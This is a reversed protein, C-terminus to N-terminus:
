KGGFIIKLYKFFFKYLFVGTPFVIFFGALAAALAYALYPIVIEAKELAVPLKKKLVEYLALILGGAIVGLLIYKYAPSKYKITVNNVGEDLDIIMFDLPNDKMERVKGNVKVEYGELNAYNLYLSQGKKATIEPLIIENKALKYEVKREELKTKLARIDSTSISGKIGSKEGNLFDYVAVMRANEDMDDDIVINGGDVVACSPFALENEYVGYKATNVQVSYETGDAFCLRLAVFANSYKSSKTFNYLVETTEFDRNTCTLYSSSAGSLRYTGDNKTWGTAEVGNMVTEGDVTFNKVEATIYHGVVRAKNVAESTNFAYFPKDNIYFEYGGEVQKASLKIDNGRTVNALDGTPKEASFIRTSEGGSKKWVEVCPKEYGYIETAKYYNKNKGNSDDGDYLNYVVYKYSMVADSFTTGNHTKTSNQGNSAYGFFDPVTINKTAAMSSFVSHGYSGLVIPSDSSIYYKYNKYRYYNEGYTDNVGEVLQEYVDYNEKSGSQRDGKVLSFNFFIPQSLALICMVCAIDKLKVNLFKVILATIVFIILVVSMLIFTTELGGESHAFNPFFGSFPMNSETLSFKEMFASVLGNSKFEGDYIFNFFRFTFFVGVCVLACVCIMGIIQKPTSKDEKEGEEGDITEANKAANNELMLSLGKAAVALGFADLLFGFRLAYSMYSGMNLLLMSEDVICPVILIILAVVAFLAFKDGKESRVFYYSGLFIFTSNCFIYTFKEYLHEVLKGNNLQSKSYIKFIESFLGTNRGAQAYAKLAPFILPLAMAVALVFGFCMRTLKHKREEKPVCFIMYAVLVPFLMFFSFCAISFCAYIMCALSISFVKISDKKILNMFGCMLIPMCISIDLWVLYTNAVYLYGGYAYLLALTVSLYEPINKFYKRIFYYATLGATAVKLPMVISVMYFTNGKGGLLFLFSFPSIVCYALSGFMDMGGGIFFSHFLGSEGELFSFIHELFPCEQALMDYSAMIAKGFPFIGFSAQAIAFVALVFIPIVFWGYNKKLFPLTKEKIFCKFSMAQNEKDESKLENVRSRLDSIQKEYAIIDYIVYFSM